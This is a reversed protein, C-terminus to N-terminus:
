PAVPLVRGVASMADPTGVRIEPNAPLSAPLLLNIQFLGAYGPTVGAYQIARPDVAVGNLLVQFSTDVLTAVGTPLQNAVAPPSTVGLGTAYLVVVEGPKAPSAPTVLPGNGHTAIVNVSDLQFLGPATGGLTIQVTPGALSDNLLVLTLSGPKLSPPILINVLGPSVYYIDAPVNNLLVRVNGLVTPLAQGVIDGSSMAKTIYSLNQGYISLFTDPAYPGAMNSAANAISQATYYPAGPVPPNDARLVAAFSVLLVSISSFHLSVRHAV